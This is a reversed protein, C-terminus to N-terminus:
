YVQVVGGYMVCHNLPNNNPNYEEFEAAHANLYNTLRRSLTSASVKLRRIINSNLMYDAETFDGRTDNGCREPIQPEVLYRTWAAVLPAVYEEKLAAYDGALIAAYLEEGVIPLLYRTEATLIDLSTIKSSTITYASGFALEVVQDPNITTNM